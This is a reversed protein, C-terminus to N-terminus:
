DLLRSSGIVNRLRPAAAAAQFFLYIQEANLPTEATLAVYNHVVSDSGAYAFLYDIKACMVQGPDVLDGLRVYRQANRRM